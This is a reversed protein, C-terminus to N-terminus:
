LRPLAPGIRNQNADIRLRAVAGAAGRFRDFLGRIDIREQHQIQAHRRVLLCYVTSLLCCVTFLLCCLSSLSSCCCAVSALRSAFVQTSVQSTTAQQKQTRM